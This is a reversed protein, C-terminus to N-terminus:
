KAMHIAHLTCNICVVAFKYSSPCETSRMGGDIGLLGRQFCLMSLTAPGEGLRLVTEGPIVHFTLQLGFMTGVRVRDYRSGIVV